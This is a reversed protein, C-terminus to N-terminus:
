RRDIRGVQRLIYGSREEAETTTRPTQFSLPVLIKIEKLGEEPRSPAYINM